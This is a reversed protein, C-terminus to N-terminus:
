TCQKPSAEVRILNTVFLFVIVPFIHIGTRLSTSSILGVDKPEFHFFGLAMFFLYYFIVASLYRNEIDRRFLVASFVFAPMLVLFIMKWGHHVAYNLGYLLNSFGYSRTSGVLVLVLVPGLWVSLDYYKLAAVSRVRNSIFLWQIMSIAFSGILLFSIRSGGIHFYNWDSVQMALVWWPSVIFFYMGVASLWVRSNLRDRCFVGLLYIPLFSYLLFESRIFTCVALFFVGWYLGRSSKKYVWRGLLVVGFSYYIAAPINALFWITLKHYQVQSICIMVFILSMLISKSVSLNIRAANFIISSLFLLGWISVVPCFSYFLEIGCWYGLAVVSPLFFMRAFVYQSLEFPASWLSGGEAIFKGASIYQQSDVTLVVDAYLNATVVILCFVLLLYKSREVFYCFGDGRFFYSTIPILILVVKPLSAGFPSVFMVMMALSVVAWGLFYSIFTYLYVPSKANVRKSLLSMGFLLVAIHIFVQV